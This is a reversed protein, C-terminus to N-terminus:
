VYQICNYNPEIDEKKIFEKLLDVTNLYEEYLDTDDTKISRGGILLCCSDDWGFCVGGLSYDKIYYNIKKICNLIITCDVYNASSSDFPNGNSCDGCEFGKIYMDKYKVDQVRDDVFEHHSIGNEELVEVIKSLADKLNRVGRGRFYTGLKSACTLATRLEEDSEIYGLEM